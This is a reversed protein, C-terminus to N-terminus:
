EAKQLRAVYFGDMGGHEALSTPLTRVDGLGTILEPHDGVEEARVPLRTLGNARALLAAIRAECEEPQLSCAAYVLVGGPALAAVAAAILQDQLAGLRAVDNATKLRAVDPHRRITGTSSCPADLLVAPFPERPRYGRADAVVLEADLGLRELNASLREARAASADLATVTAGAAALQATKGGPAACLDLIRRAGGPLAGLLLRAPLAAATDQVWWAGAEYGALAEIAGGATRRLSGWPLIRAGLAAAWERPDGKTTLDLPPEDLHAHAIARAAPEGYARTWSEWLWPPTNIPAADHGAVIAQGERALRRLLANVLGKLPGSRAALRVASDVAAHAPTGLFLLQAAGLRLIDRVRRARGPLPRSLCHDIAADIQGLRRLTTAGLLRAFARDRAELARVRTAFREDLPRKRQLVDGILGLAAVRAAHGPESM